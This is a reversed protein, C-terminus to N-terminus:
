QASHRAKVQSFVSRELQFLGHLRCPAYKQEPHFPKASPERYSNKQGKHQKGRQWAREEMMAFFLKGYGQVAGRGRHMGICMAGDAFRRYRNALCNWGNSKGFVCREQCFNHGHANRRDRVNAGFCRPESPRRLRYLTRVSWPWLGARVRTNVPSKRDQNEM